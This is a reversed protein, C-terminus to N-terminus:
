ADFEAYYILRDCQREFSPKNPTNALWGEIFERAVLVELFYAFGPREIDSIKGSNPHSIIIAESMATFPKAACVVGDEDLLFLDRVVELLTM